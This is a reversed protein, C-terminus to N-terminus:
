PRLPSHALKHEKQWTADATAARPHCRAHGRRQHRPPPPPPPPARAPHPPVPPTRHRLDNAAHLHEPRLEAARHHAADGCTASTPHPTEGPSVSQPTSPECGRRFHGERTPTQGGDPTTPPSPSSKPLSAPPMSTPVRHRRRLGDRCSSSILAPTAHVSRPHLAPPPPPHKRSQAPTM